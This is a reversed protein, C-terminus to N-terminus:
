YVGDTYGQAMEKDTLKRVITAEINVVYYKEVLLRANEWYELEISTDKHMSVLDDALRKAISELDNYSM